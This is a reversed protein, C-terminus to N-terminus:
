SMRITWMITTTMHTTRIVKKHRRRTVGRTRGERSLAMKVKTDHTHACIYSEMHYIYIYIADIIYVM